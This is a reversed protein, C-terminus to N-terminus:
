GSRVRSARRRRIRFERSCTLAVSSTGCGDSGAVGATGASGTVGTAQLHGNPCPCIWVDKWAPPIALERIRELVEREDVREGEDDDYAFGGGARRRTIGPGSCDSRRLRVM